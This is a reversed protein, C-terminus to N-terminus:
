GKSMAKAATQVGKSTCVSAPQQGDASCIAASIYNAAAVIAETVPDKANNLNQAIQSHSLGQLLSPSFSAGPVLVKNGIDVFPFSYQGPTSSAVYKGTDYTKLISAEQANPNQLTTYGTGASNLQNSETEVTRLEVYSSRYTARVFTFTPTSPYVDTASSQMLGLGTLKGFRSLAAVLPWREAACYPCFEAGFYFVGPKNTNTFVLPKQNKLVEPPSVATASSTVGVTDFVSAPINTAPQAVSAPAPEFSTPGGPSSNGGTVKVIVLVAVSVLVLGVIGWTLMATPRRGPAAPRRPGRGPAQRSGRAAAGAQTNRGAGGRGPPRRGSPGEKAARGGGGAPRGKAGNGAGGKRAGTQGTGRAAEKGTVPRSQQRSREKDAATRGPRQANDDAM